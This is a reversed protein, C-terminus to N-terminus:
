YTKKEKMNIIMLKILYDKKIEKKTFTELLSDEMMGLDRIIFKLFDHNIKKM